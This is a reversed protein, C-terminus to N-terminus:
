SGSQAAKSLLRSCTPALYCLSVFIMASTALAIGSVGFWKRFIYCLVINTGLSIATGWMLATNKKLASIARVILTVLLYFPLQILFCAQVRSVVETDGSTFAGRQFLLRVIPTSLVILGVTLPVTAVVILGSYTKLTHRLGAYDREAVMRSFQPLAATSLSLAGVSIVLSTLKNGYSLAAVSGADLTGAMGQNVLISGSMILAGAVMPAYQRGVERTRSDLGTWVPLLSVGRRRLGWGILSAEGLYGCRTGVALAFVSISGDTLLVFVTPVAPTLFTAGAALAFRHEANLVAAWVTSLGSVVLVPLLIFFLRQTLALKEGGFQSGLLPLIWRSLGALVVAAVVLVLVAVFMVNAFLRQAARSGERTRVEILTPILAATLSAAVVTVTFLPLTFAILFADLENQRGFRYAVVLEKAVGAFRAVVSFAGVTLLAAMLRRNASM